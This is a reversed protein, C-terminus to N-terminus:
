ESQESFKMPSRRSSELYDAAKRLREPSDGAHGIMRNCNTCLLGRVMKTEHCHDVDFAKDQSKSCVACKGLQAIFMSDYDTLSVGYKRVLHKERNQIKTRAYREVEYNPNRSKWAQDSIRKCAKCQCPRNRVGRSRSRLESIQKEIGCKRCRKLMM